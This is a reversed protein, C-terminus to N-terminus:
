ARLRCVIGSWGNTCGDTCGNTCGSLASAGSAGNASAIAPAMAQAMAPAMAPAVAPPVGRSDPICDGLPSQMEGLVEPEFGLAEHELKSSSAICDADVSNATGTAEGTAEPVDTDAVEPVAAPAIPFRM